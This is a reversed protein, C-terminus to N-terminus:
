TSLADFPTHPAEACQSSWLPRKDLCTITAALAGAGCVAPVRVRDDDIAPVGSPAEAASACRCSGQEDPAIAICECTRAYGYSCTCARVYWPASLTPDTSQETVNVARAPLYRWAVVAAIAAVGASVISARSMAEAFAVRAADAVQAGATGLQGSVQLAAGLSDRAAAAAPGPVTQPLEGTLRSRYISSTISGVIAVGLAGGVERATDNVASGVGARNRPLSGMISDTAPASSLGLGAGLLLMAVGLRTYGSAVTTTSAVILGTAFIV